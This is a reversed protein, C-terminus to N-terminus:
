ELINLQGFLQQTQNLLDEVLQKQGLKEARSIELQIRAIENKFVNKKLDSAMSMLEAKAAVTDFDFFDKEGLLILRDTLSALESQSIKNRFDQYKFLEIDSKIDETYYIILSKYLDLLQGDKIIESPLNDILYPLLREFRLILALLREELLYFRDKNDSVPKFPESVATEKGTGPKLVDRLIQESVNLRSGLQQLWHTQEIKNGIKAIVPLLIKAAEKKQEAKTVDLRSFTKDFYYEMISQSASVANFWLKVDKKICEDPDKGEPLVIVKVNLEEKLVLDIGRKAASEGAADTDFAIALNNTYRKLIKIQELTLATGSTAIVNKSGAAYATIADMQGEVLIALNNNKIETKAKDLNFLLLSKNYILTQPTNIYKGQKEDLKMTRASFGVPNGHLDNIPFTIRDRFRDYFDVGREKKVSLGALFIEQDTFRKTKLFKILNDWSEPAYGIKFESITQDSVGRSRLYDRAAKAVPQELFLSHWYNAAIQCIDMLRGKQSILKPDQSVLQVGAKQALLRLTEAFELGEMKQVFTFVDGGEGCGFCHFIQKDKSVMFSPTKENHFPCLARFNNAGAPKLRIYEGVIEAIDLRAKIEDIQGPM